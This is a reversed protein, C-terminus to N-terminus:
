IINFYNFTYTGPVQTGYSFLQNQWLRAKARETSALFKSKIWFIIFPVLRLISFPIVFLARLTVYTLFFIATQPAATGLLTVISGPDNILQQFQNAASGLIFSGFFVTVVQFIFFRSLLGIDIQSLSVMGAFRNMATIIPPLLAIFITLVLGPLIATIFSAAIPIDQIFGLLSNTSLLAQVAAVPILYFLTLATFAAWMTRGRTTREWARMRLNSWVVEPPRPAAQCRWASLDECVLAGSAVVQATRRTFTVFATPWVATKAEEQAAEIESWLFALRDQYYEFADVKKPKLGYKERGWPGLKAGIVTLKKPKLEIKRNKKSIYDDVLDRAALATSEYDRVLADLKATDNVVNSHAFEKEFVKKFEADVMGHVSGTGKIGAVALAWRDPLKFDEPSDADGAAISNLTTLEEVTVVEESGAATGATGKATGAAAAAADEKKKQAADEEESDEKKGKKKKKKGDKDTGVDVGPIDTVLVTHSEAGKPTNLLYFMRLRLAVKSYRWLQFFIFLCIVWCIVAHAVMKPSSEPINSLTTKDLDTFTYDSPVNDASYYWVYGPPAPGLPPVGPAYKEWSLGPPAPPIGDSTYFDPAEVAKDEAPSPTPSPSAPAAGPAIPPSPPPPSPPPPIWYTFTSVPVPAGAAQANMLQDITDNTINIPLIIALVIFSVVLFTEVGMRLFKIYLAADIGGSSIVQAESTKVVQGLWGLLTNPLRPPPKYGEEVVFRKPAFFKKTFSLRRWVSFLIFVLALVAAYIAVSIAYAKGSTAM